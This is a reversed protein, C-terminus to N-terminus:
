GEPAHKLEVTGTQYLGQLFKDAEFEDRAFRYRWLYTGSWSLVVGAAPAASFTVLGASTVTVGSAQLVGNAYISAPLNVFDPAMVHGGQTRVLRFQTTSGNGLAFTQATVTNDLEDDFLFSHLAGRCTNFFGEIQQLEQFEADARLFEYALVRAGRPVQWNSARFERGSAATRVATNWGQRRKTGLKLGPLKPYIANSLAM